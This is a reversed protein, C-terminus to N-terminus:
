GLAAEMAAGLRLLRAEGMPLGLAMLGCSAVGTPLTLAPLGLMNAVRTNRLALLNEAVYFGPDELLRARPPPLSAVTPLLVADHGRAATLYAARAAELARRAAIVTAADAARGSEFRERVPAFMAEPNAEISPGWIAWAEPTFLHPTQAMADNVGPM